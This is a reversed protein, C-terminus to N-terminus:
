KAKYLTIGTKKSKTKVYTKGKYEFSEAGKKKADLMAKFYDNLKKAM